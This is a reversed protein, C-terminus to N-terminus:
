TQISRRLYVEAPLAALLAHEGERRIERAREVAQARFPSQWAPCGYREEHADSPFPERPKAGDMEHSAGDLAGRGVHGVEGPRAHRRVQETM